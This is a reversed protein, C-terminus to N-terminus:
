YKKYDREQNCWLFAFPSFWAFLPNGKPSSYSKGSFKCYMNLKLSRRWLLAVYFSESCHLKYFNWALLKFGPISELSFCHCQKRNLIWLPKGYLSSTTLLGLCYAPRLHISKIKLSCNLFQSRNINAKNSINYPLM